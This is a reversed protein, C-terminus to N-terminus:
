HSRFKIKCSVLTFEREEGTKWFTLEIWIPKQFTVLRIGILHSVAELLWSYSGEQMECCRSVGRRCKAAGVLEGGANRLV